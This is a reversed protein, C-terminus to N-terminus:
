RHDPCTRQGMAESLTCTYKHEEYHGKEGDVGDVWRKCTPHVIREGDVNARAKAISREVPTAPAGFCERVEQASGHYEKCNGCRVQKVGKTIAEGRIAQFVPSESTNIEEMAMRVKLEREQADNIQLMLMENSIAKASGDVPTFAKSTLHRSCVVFSCGEMIRTSTRTIPLNCQKGKVLACCKRNNYSM